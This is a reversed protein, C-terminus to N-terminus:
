VTWDEEAGRMLKERELKEREQMLALLDNTNARTMSVVSTVSMNKDHLHRIRGPLSKSSTESYIYSASKRNDHHLRPSQRTPTSIIDDISAVGQQNSLEDGLLANNSESTGPLHVCSGYYKSWRLAAPMAPDREASGDVRSPLAGSMFPGPSPATPDVGDDHDHSATRPKSPGTNSFAFGWKGGNPEDKIASKPTWKKLHEDETNDVKPAKPKKGKKDQAETDVVAVELISNFMVPTLLELEPYELKGGAAISTRHGSGYQRFERSQSRFISTYNKLFNKGFRMSKSKVMPTKAKKKKQAAKRKVTNESDSGTSDAGPAFVAAFDRAIVNDAAGASGTRQPRTHSPYRSWAGFAVTSEDVSEERQSSAASHTSAMSAYSAVSPKPTLSSGTLKGGAPEPPVLFDGRKIYSMSRVQRTDALSPRGERDTPDVMSSPRRPSPIAVSASRKRFLSASQANEPSLYMASKEKQYARRAKEWLAGAQDVDGHFVMSRQLRTPKREEVSAEDYTSGDFMSVARTGKKSKHHFLKFAKRNRSKVKKTPPSPTLEEKFKSEKGVSSSSSNNFAATSGDPYKRSDRANHPWVEENLTKLHAREIVPTPTPSPKSSSRGSVPTNTQSGDLMTENRLTSQPVTYAPPVPPLMLTEPSNPRTSYVSSAESVVNGWAHPVKTSAFGSSSQHQHRSRPAAKSRTSLSSRAREHQAGSVQKVSPTVSLTSASRLHQSIRMNYLHVSANCSKPEDLETDLENSRSPDVRRKRDLQSIKRDVGGRNSKISTSEATGNTKAELAGRSSLQIEDDLADAVPLTHESASVPTSILPWEGTDGNNGFSQVVSDKEHTILPVPPVDEATRDDDPVSLKWLPSNASSAASPVRRPLIQPPPPPMSISHESLSRRIARVHRIESAIDPASNSESIRRVHSATPTTGKSNGLEGDDFFAKMSPNRSPKQDQRHGPRIWEISRLDTRRFSEARSRIPSGNGPSPSYLQFSELAAEEIAEADSDYGGETRAQDSLLDKSLKQKM